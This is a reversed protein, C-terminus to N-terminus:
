SRELLRRDSRSRQTRAAVLAVGGLLLLPGVVILAYLLVQLERALVSGADDLTRDLRSSAAAAKPKPTVLTLAVRALEARRVTARLRKQQAVLRHKEITLLRELRARESATPNGELRAELTVIARRLANIRSGQADARQQLDQVSIRQSLLTGYDSFKALAQQVRDIPVRVVLTSTGRRGPVDFSATAVYGGLARTVRMAQQTRRSLEDTDKVRLTLSADYQQLRSPAPVLAQDKRESPAVPAPLGAPAGQGAAGYNTTLARHALAGAPSGSESGSHILGVAAAVGLSLALGGLAVAPVLRRLSPLPRRSPPPALAEAELRERLEVSATPRSARLERTLEAFRDDVLELPSV